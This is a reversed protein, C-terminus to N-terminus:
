KKYDYERWREEDDKKRCFNMEPPIPNILDRMQIAALKASIIGGELSGSWLSSYDIGALYLTQANEWPCKAQKAADDFLLSCGSRICLPNGRSWEDVNFDHCIVKHVNITPHHRRLLFEIQKSLVDNSYDDIMSSDGDSNDASVTRDIHYLDDKVGTVAVIGFESSQNKFQSTDTVGSVISSEEDNNPEDYIRTSSFFRGGVYSEVIGPWGIVQDISTSVGTALVWFKLSKAINGQDAFHSLVSPLKPVFDISMLCNLPVTVICAKSVIFTGDNIYVHVIPDPMEKSSAEWAFVRKKPPQINRISTASTKFLVKVNEFKNIDDFIAQALTSGGENIKSYKKMLGKRIHLDSLRRDNTYMRSNNVYGTLGMLKHLFAIASYMHSYSGMIMFGKALLFEKSPGKAQLRKELYDIFPVDWDLLGENLFGDEFYLKRMDENMLDLVRKLEPQDVAPVPNENVGLKRGFNFTWVTNYMQEKLRLNYRKVEEAVALHQEADYWEIGMELRFDNPISHIMQRIEENENEILQDQFLESAYQTLIRGGIRDRSELILVSLGYSLCDRAAILGSIGAGVIVVDFTPVYQPDINNIEALLAEELEEKSAM